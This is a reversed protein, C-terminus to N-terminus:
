ASPAPLGNLVVTIWTQAGVPLAPDPLLNLLVPPPLQPVLIPSSGQVPELGKEVLNKLLNPIEPIDCQLFTATPGFLHSGPFMADCESSFFETEAM